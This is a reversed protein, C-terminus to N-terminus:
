NSDMIPLLKTKLIVFNLNESIQYKYLEEINLQSKTADLALM